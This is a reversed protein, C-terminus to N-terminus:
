TEIKPRIGLSTAVQNAKEMVLKVLELTRKYDEPDAPKRVSTAPDPRCDWARDILDRWSPDLNAKAWEAGAGKSGNRGTILDHLMRCYNLVIFGQYFRNDYDDSNDLIQQGWDLITSLIDRRLTDAPIPDFHTRPDPGALNVGHEWVVWRVLITNCHRDRILSQAGHDLYWLEEGARAPDKLIDLPFYSGELHQAWTGELHYIRKHMAQLADVQAKSPDEKIAVIYDVDSHKDFDGIAFSGQLYFGVFLDGLIAQMSEVLEALVQNLEPYPTPNMSQAEQSAPHSRTQLAADLLLVQSKNMELGRIRDLPM